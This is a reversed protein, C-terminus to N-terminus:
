RVDLWTPTDTVTYQINFVSTFASTFASTFVNPTRMRQQQLRALHSVSYDMPTVPQLFELTLFELTM